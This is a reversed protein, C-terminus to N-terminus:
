ASLKAQSMVLVDLYIRIGLRAAYRLHLSAAALRESLKHYNFCCRNSQIKLSLFFRDWKDRAIILPNDKGSLLRGVGFILSLKNTDLGTFM